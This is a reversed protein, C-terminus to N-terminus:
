GHGTEALQEQFGQAAFPGAGHFVRPNPLFESWRVRWRGQVMGLAPVLVSGQSHFKGQLGAWDDGDSRQQGAPNWQIWAADVAWTQFKDTATLWGQQVEGFEFVRCQAL